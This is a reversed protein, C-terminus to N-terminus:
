RPEKTPGAVSVHKPITLTAESKPTPAPASADGPPTLNGSLYAVITQYQDDTLTAGYGIMQSVTQSWEDPSRPRALIVDAGHCQMCSEMVQAKGPADPLTAEEAVVTTGALGCLAFATVILATQFSKM